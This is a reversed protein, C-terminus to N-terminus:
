GVTLGAGAMNSVDKLYNLYIHNDGFSGYENEVQWAIIPGGKSYQL